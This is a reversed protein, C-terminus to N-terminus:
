TGQPAGASEHEPPSVLLHPGTAECQLSLKAWLVPTRNADCEMSCDLHLAVLGDKHEVADLKVSLRVSSNIPVSGRFRVDRLAYTHAVVVDELVFVDELLPILLGLAHFGHAAQDSRRVHSGAAQVSGSDQEDVALWFAACMEQTVCIWQSKGLPFGAHARIGELGKLMIPM